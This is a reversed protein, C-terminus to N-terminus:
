NKGMFEFSNNIYLKELYFSRGFEFVIQKIKEM